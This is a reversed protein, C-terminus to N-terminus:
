PREDPKKRGIRPENGRMLRAINQAHKLYILVALCTLLWVLHREGSLFAAVPAAASAVLASLSSIRTILATVIWVGATILGMLPSLALVAGLSTAVGKGGKFRLWVPYMHGVVAALSAFAEINDALLRAACVAAAGKGTDMLLTLFALGKRGTRLVNTAGINGSGISRVDGLGALRTLLYGFPVSGILYALALTLAETM